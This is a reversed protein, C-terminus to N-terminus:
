ATFQISRDTLVQSALSRSDKTEHMVFRCHIFTVDDLILSGGDYHIEVDYLVVHRLYMGGLIFAGGVALLSAPGKEATQPEPSGIEDMRASVAINTRAFSTTFEAQKEGAPFRVLIHFVEVHDPNDTTGVPYYASLLPPPENLYSRYDLFVLAATWASPDSTAADLFKKGANEVVKPHLKINSNEARVLIQKAEKISRPDTPNDATDKLRRTIVAAEIVPTPLLAFVLFLVASVPLFVLSRRTLLPVDMALKKKEPPQVYRWARTIEIAGILLICITAALKFSSGMWESVMGAAAGSVVSVLMTKSRAAHDYTLYYDLSTMDELGQHGQFAASYHAM